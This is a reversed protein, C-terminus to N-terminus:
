RVLQRIRAVVEDDTRRRHSGPCRAVRLHEADLLEEMSELTRALPWSLNDRPMPLGSAPVHARADFAALQATLSSYRALLLTAAEIRDARDLFAVVWTSLSPSAGGLTFGARINALAQDRHAHVLEALRKPDATKGAAAFAELDGCPWGTAYVSSTFMEVLSGDLELEVLALIAQDDPLSAAAAYRRAVEDQQVRLSRRVPDVAETMAFDVRCCPQTAHILLYAGHQNRDTKDALIRGVADARARGANLIAPADREVYVAHLPTGVQYSGKFVAEITGDLEFRGPQWTVKGASVRVFGDAARLAALFGIAPAKPAPAVAPTPPTPRPPDDLRSTTRECGFALAVIPLWRYSM